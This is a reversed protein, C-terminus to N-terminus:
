APIREGADLRARSAPEILSRGTMARPRALGLLDLVTPAVDSLRGDALAAVQVPAHVLIAPVPNTTHATHAVGTEADRMTEANGHIIESIMDMLRQVIRSLTTATKLVLEMNGAEINRELHAIDQEITNDM